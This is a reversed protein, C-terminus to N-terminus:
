KLEGWTHGFNGSCGLPVATEGLVGSMTESIAADVLEENGEDFEFVLEDHVNLLCEIDMSQHLIPLTDHWIEAMALKLVGAAASQIPMNGAQRLAEERIRNIQSGAAPLYRIRGFMDRVLLERRAMAKMRRMYVGVGPYAEELYLRILEACEAETWKQGRLDMQERLGKPSVGYVVGFGINKASTRQSKTVEELPVRFVLSATMAHIDLNENFVRILNDDGSMIALLRMEIQDYDWSGFIKGPSAIFGHRIKMGLPTRTPCNQLNPDSSALRGTETRTLKFRTHIRNRSDAMQPLKDAYTGDIKDAQRYALLLDIAEILQRHESYKLKLAELTKNDTSDGGSKTKRGASVGMSHLLKTVQQQSNPNIDEGMLRKLKWLAGDKMEVLDNHLAAFHAKDIMIGVKEMRAIIPLIANDMAAVDELEAEKIRVNLANYVRLTADADRASYYVATSEEVDTLEPERMPGLEREVHARDIADINTWRKRIDLLPDKKLDDLISSVRRGIGHPTYIKSVNGQWVLREGGTQWYTGDGKCVPCKVWKIGGNRKPETIERWGHCNPCEGRSLVADLYTEAIEREAPAVIESYSSMLMGAHRFALPKLGQPEVRLNYALVMTDVLREAPVHYGEADLVAIDHMANHMIIPGTHDRNLWDFFVDLDYRDRLVRGGGEWQSYSMGWMKGPWGETDISLPLTTSNLWGATKTKTSEGVVQQLDGRKIRGLQQIDYCTLQMQEPSHLGAAPHIIPVVIREEGCPTTVARIGIGHVSTIDQKDDGLLWHLSFRGIAGIIRPNVAEIEDLLEDEAAAIEEPLPDRNGPPRHKLLNTLYMERRDLGALRLFRDLEKGAAGVFPRGTKDEEVGPAEGILM